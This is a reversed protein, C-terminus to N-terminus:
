SQEQAAAPASGLALWCHGEAGGPRGGAEEAVGADGLERALGCDRVEWAERPQRWRVYGEESVTGQRTVLGPSLLLTEKCIQYMVGAKASGPINSRHCSSM